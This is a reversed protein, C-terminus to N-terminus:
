RCLQKGGAASAHSRVVSGDMSVDQLDSAESFHGFLKEWVGNACWRSFRKFVSNWKGHTPPLVRWQSGSRLIWLCASIFQRCTGLQGVHIGTLKKLNALIRLWEEDSLNIRNM